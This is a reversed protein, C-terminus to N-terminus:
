DKEIHNVADPPQISAFLEPFIGCCSSLLINSIIEACYKKM